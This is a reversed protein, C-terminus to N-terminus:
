LRFGSARSGLIRFGKVGLGSFRVYDRNIMLITTEIRKEM